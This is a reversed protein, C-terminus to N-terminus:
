RTGRRLRDLDGVLGAVRGTIKFVANAPAATFSNTPPLAMLLSVARSSLAILGALEAVALEKARGCADTRPQAAADMSAGVTALRTAHRGPSSRDNQSTNM